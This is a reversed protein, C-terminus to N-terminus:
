NSKQRAAYADQAARAERFNMKEIGPIKGPEDPSERHSQSFTSGGQADKMLKEFTSVIEATVLMGKLPAYGKADLWTNLATVRATGNVGLKAIEANRATQIMQQDAVKSAAIMGIGTEFENQSLGNKHAWTRAQAFLPDTEDLKFEIGEPPKFDKPLALKFDDPTKPLTLKRSDDAAKFAVHDKVFQGFEPKPANKEADWHTEPIYDPRAVAQQQQQGGDNTQQNQGGTAANSNSGGGQDQGGSQSQGGGQQSSQNTQNAQDTM